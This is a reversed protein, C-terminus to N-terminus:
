FEYQDFFRKIRDQYDPAEDFVCHGYRDPYLYLEADTLRAIEQSAGEDMVRDGEVGIVLAPAKIKDLEDRCDFGRISRALIIFRRLGEETVGDNMHIFFDRFRGITEPAYLRDIFDATLGTIDGAQALAIWRDCVQMTREGARAASSGIVLAAVLEPVDIALNLAIMGGLSAGFIYAGKLQLERMAAATDRALDRITYGEHLQEAPDFVFVTYDDEFGRYAAQVAKASSLISKVDIGPLIVMARPGHGFAFYGMGAGGAELRGIVLDSGSM